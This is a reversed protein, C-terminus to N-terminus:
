NLSAELQRVELKNKLYSNAQMKSRYWSLQARSLVKPFNFVGHFGFHKGPGQYFSREFGFCAAIPVPAYKYADGLLKRHTRCVTVDEPEGWNFWLGDKAVRQILKMSRMSFGGNGVEYGDGHWGWPCGIYDYRLFESSWCQPSLVWSDWQQVLVHKADVSEPVREWLVKAVSRMDGGDFHKLYLEPVNRLEAFLKFAPQPTWVHVSHFRVRNCSREVAAAALDPCCDDVIVLAVDRLHLM